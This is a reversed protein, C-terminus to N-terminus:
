SYDPHGSPDVHVIIESNPMENELKKILREALDHSEVFTLKKNVELHFEIFKKSGTNRTRLKHFGNIDDSFMSITNEIVILKEGPLEKDMLIDLSNQVILYASYIIYASIMITVLSDVYTLGTLKVVILGIIITLNTYLDARYHFSDAHLAISETKKATNKLYGSLFYSTVLSIVMITIGEDLYSLHNESSFRKLSEYVLYFSSLIIIISQILGAIGEAKEHGYKHEEDAPKIAHSISYYNITSASLDLFSDVASTIISLSNTILGFLIKLIFLTFSVSISLLAARKKVSEKKM